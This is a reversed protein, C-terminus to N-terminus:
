PRFVFGPETAIPVNFQRLQQQARKMQERAATELDEPAATTQQAFVPTVAAFVAALERRTVSNKWRMM